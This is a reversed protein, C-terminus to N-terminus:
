VLIWFQTNLKMTWTPPLYMLLVVYIALALLSFPRLMVIRPYCGTYFSHFHLVLMLSVLCVFASQVLCICYRTSYISSSLFASLIVVRTPILSMCHLIVYAFMLFVPRLSPYQCMHTDVPRDAKKLLLLIFIHFSIFTM